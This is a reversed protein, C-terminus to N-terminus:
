FYINRLVKQILRYRGFKEHLFNFLKLRKFLPLQSIYEEKKWKGEGLCRDIRWLNDSVQAILFYGNTAQNVYNKIRYFEDNEDDYLFNYFRKARITKYVNM